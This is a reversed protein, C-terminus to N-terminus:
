LSCIYVIIVESDFLPLATLGGHAGWAGCLHLRTEQLVTEPSWSLYEVLVISWHSAILILGQWKAEVLLSVSVQMTYTVNTTLYKSIDHDKNSYYM